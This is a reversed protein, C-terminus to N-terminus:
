MMMADDAGALAEDEENEGDGDGHVDDGVGDDDDDDDCADADHNGDSGIGHTTGPAQWLEEEQQM